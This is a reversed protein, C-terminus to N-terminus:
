QRIIGWSFHNAQQSLPIISHRVYFEAPKSGLKLRGVHKAVRFFQSVVFCDTQPHSYIFRRVSSDYNALEFEPRAIVNVKAYICNPFTPVVKDEWRHTLYYLYQEQLIAKINFLRCLNIHGFVFLLKKWFVSLYFSSYTLLSFLM